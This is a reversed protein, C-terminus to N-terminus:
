AVGVLGRLFLYLFLALDAAQLHHHVHDHRHDALISAKGYILGRLQYGVGLPSRQRHKGIFFESVVDDVFWSQLPQHAFAIANLLCPKSQLWASWACPSREGSSGPACRCRCTVTTTPIGSGFIGATRSWAPM